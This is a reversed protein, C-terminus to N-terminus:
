MLQKLLSHGTMDPPTPIQLLELITPAIDSLVGLTDEEINQWNIFKRNKFEQGILYFPVPNPDHQREPRGTMLDLMMEVNGHDGTIMLITQPNIAVKLIKGLEEDITKVGQIAAEINGTHALVDPNAYNVLIFDFSQNEIAPLLRDTIASAMLKPNQDPHLSAASPILVRYENKFPEERYANFFYTIHSYKYTEGLRLQNKGNDALIKGLPNEIFEPIFAVPVNFDKEYQTMTAVYLNPMPVTQFKSFGKMIFPTAMQKAGDERYNFFIMADGDKVSLDPNIRIPPLYEETQDQAYIANLATEPNPAIQGSQGVMAGYTVQILQWREERDLAYYRGTLTAIKDQPLQKMFNSASRAPSDKGDMFLHLNVKSFNEKEAMKLLAELHDLSGHVNAKSLLGVLNVSSGNKRAHDFAGKLAPNDYFSGDRISLMIRPYHQYLVKGAGMALHGVESNGTEGWPL